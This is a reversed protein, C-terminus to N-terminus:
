LGFALIWKFWFFSLKMKKFTLIVYKSLSLANKWFVIWTLFKCSAKGCRFSANKPRFLLKCMQIIFSQGVGTRGAAAGGSLWLLGLRLRVSEGCLLSCLPEAARGHVPECKVHEEDKKIISGYYTNKERTKKLVSLKMVWEYNNWHREYSVKFFCRCIEGKM